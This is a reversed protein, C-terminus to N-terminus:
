EIRTENERAWCEMDKTPDGLIKHTTVGNPKTPRIYTAVLQFFICLRLPFLSQYLLKFFFM